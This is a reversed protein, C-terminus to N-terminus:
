RFDSFFTNSIETIEEQGKLKNKLGGLRDVKEMQDQYGPM